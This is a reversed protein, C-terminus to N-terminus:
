ALDSYTLFDSEQLSGSFGALFALRRGEDGHDDAMSAVTDEGDDHGSMVFLLTGGCAADYVINLDSFSLGGALALLDTGQKFDTVVDIGETCGDHGDEEEHSTPALLATTEGEHGGGGMGGGGHEGDEGGPLALVFIDRGRGGTMTDPANGGFLVDNGNGGDMLDPGCGGILLDKGNGGFMDDRGRGGRLEDSGNGGYLFDRGPGGDLRDKGNNGELCDRGGGGSLTDDGNLGQFHQSGGAGTMTDVKNTGKKAPLNCPSSEEGDDDCGEGGGGGGGHTGGGHTGEDVSESLSPAPGPGASLVEELFAFQTSTFGKLRREEEATLHAPSSHKPHSRSSKGSRKM